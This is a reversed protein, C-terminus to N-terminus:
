RAKGNSEECIQNIIKDKDIGFEDVLKDIEKISFTAPEKLRSYFTQRSIGLCKCIAKTKYNEFIKM